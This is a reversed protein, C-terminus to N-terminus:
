LEEISPTGQILIEEPMTITTDLGFINSFIGYFFSFVPGLVPHITWNYWPYVIWNLFPYIIWDLFFWLGGLSMRAWIAEGWTKAEEPIEDTRPLPGIVDPKPVWLPYERPEVVANTNAVVHTAMYIYLELATFIVVVLPFFSNALRAQKTDMIKVFMYMVLPLYALNCLYVPSIACADMVSMLCVLLTFMIVLYVSDHQGVLRVFTSKERPEKVFNLIDFCIKGNQFVLLPAMAFVMVRLSATNYLLMSIIQVLFFGDGILMQMNDVASYPVNQSVM